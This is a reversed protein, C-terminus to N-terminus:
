TKQYTTISHLFTGFEAVEGEGMFYKGVLIKIKVESFAIFTVTKAKEISVADTKYLTEILKM